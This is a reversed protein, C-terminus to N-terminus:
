VAFGKAAAERHLSVGAVINFRCSLARKSCAAAELAVLERCGTAPAVSAGPLLAPSPVWSGSQELFCLHSLDSSARASIFIGRRAPSNRRKRWPETPRDAKELKRTQRSLECSALWSRSFRIVDDDVTCFCMVPGAFHLAAIDRTEM